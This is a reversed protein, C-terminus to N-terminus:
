GGEGPAARTGFFDTIVGTLAEITYDRPQLHAGLGRAEATRATIPGICAVTVSRMRDLLWTQDDKFMDLFNVVTSSSTFTVMDLARAELLRRVEGTGTDPRITRYAPVLTVLAGMAELDRPLIERAEVARPILIRMGRPDLARFHDLIAEARYEGPVFDPRIGREIWAQATSPGIAGIAIGKLDRLDKGAAELRRLFQRVGNVSTFLVWQFTELEAIARDLPGWDEPDTIAITPFEICSAGLDLLAQKFGSAQERARTVLIRKGFLPRKEFWDLRDRLSVVGGVVIIGPPRVGAKAAREVITGLTGAVTKQEPLTGKQIVAVTTEPPRGNQMLNEVIGKLNGVGMLFVLTGAGTSLKDWAIDSGAKTPDEHGTVFAVSSTHERHTLPIGAYAPVAIASTVGPVVEFPIGERVLVEAEEGGRGFIFPDGGKLRVVHKGERAKEVILSNIAEQSLTHDGGQKGVYIREAEPRALDLFSPNALYDYVLVDARGICDRGKVTLLGPDGPGAGVLTVKGAKEGM